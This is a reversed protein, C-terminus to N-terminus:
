FSGGSSNSQQLGPSGMCRRFFVLLRSERACFSMREDRFSTVRIRCMAHNRGSSFFIEDGCQGPAQSAPHEAPICFPFPFFPQFITTLCCLPFSPTRPLVIAPRRFAFSTDNRRRARIKQCSRSPSSPLPAQEKNLLPCALGLAQRQSPKKKRREAAGRGATM